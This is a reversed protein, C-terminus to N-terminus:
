VVSSYIMDSTIYHLTCMYQNFMGVAECKWAKQALSLTGM